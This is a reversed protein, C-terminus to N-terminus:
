ISYRINGVMTVNITVHNLENCLGDFIGWTYIKCMFADRGYVDQVVSVYGKSLLKNVGNNGQNYYCVKSGDM